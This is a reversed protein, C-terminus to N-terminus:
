VALVNTLVYGADSATVQCDVNLAAEYVNQEEAEERWSRVRHGGVVFTYGASPNQINPAPSVYGVWVSDTLVPAMVAAQGKKASNYMASCVIIRPIRLVQQLAQISAMAPSQGIYKIRDLIDAHELLVEAVEESMVATNARVGIANRVARRATMFNAIPTSGSSADWKTSPSSNGASWNATTTLLTARTREMSLMIKDIVRATANLAPGLATDANNRVRDPIAWAFKIEETSYTGTSHAYGGRKARDGPRVIEAEDRFVDGKNWVYYIDSEKTVPVRPFVGDMVYEENEYGIALRELAANQHVSGLSPQSM